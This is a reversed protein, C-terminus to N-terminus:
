ESQESRPLEPVTGIVGFPDPTLVQYLLQIPRATTTEQEPRMLRQYRMFKHAHLGPNTDGWQYAWLCGWVEHKVSTM